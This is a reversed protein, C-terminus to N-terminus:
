FVKVASMRSVQETGVCKKSLLVLADQTSGSRRIVIGRFVRDGSYFFDVLEGLGMPYAVTAYQGSLEKVAYTPPPRYGPDTDDQLHAPLYINDM